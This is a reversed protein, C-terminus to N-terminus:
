VRHCPIIISVENHGVASGVAQASMHPMGHMQTM